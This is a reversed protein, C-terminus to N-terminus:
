SVPLQRLHRRIEAVTYDIAPQPQEVERWGFRRAYVNDGVRVQLELLVSPNDEITLWVPELDPYNELLQKTVHWRIHELENDFQRALREKKKRYAAMKEKIEATM